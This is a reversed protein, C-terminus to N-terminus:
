PLGRLSSLYALVDDLEKKTLISSYSPMLSPQGHRIEAVNSKMFSRLNDSTDRLQISLDDENLRIGTIKQGSKTVVQVARYNVPLDAEPKVLSEHLYQLTARRGITTLEPGLSGGESGIAHCVKCGGKAEYIMKGMGADGPAKEESGTSGIKKVFAVMRWVDDDGARVPAM